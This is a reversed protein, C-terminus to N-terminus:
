RRDKSQCAFFATKELAAALDIQEIFGGPISRLPVPAFNLLGKVGANILRDAAEQAAVAPVALIGVRVEERRVVDILEEAAYCRCGGIVRGAIRPDTDFGAVVRVAQEHGAFYALLARGLNGVGVLAAREGEAAGLYERLARLLLGVDYGRSPSGECGVVMLDRRVQPANSGARHALERSRVYQLGERQVGELVRRYLALREISRESVM